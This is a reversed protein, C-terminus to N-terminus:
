AEEVFKPLQKKKLVAKKPEPIFFGEVDELITYIPNDRELAKLEPDPEPTGYGKHSGHADLYYMQAKTNGKIAADILADEVVEVRIEAIQKCYQKDEKVWKIHTNLDIRANTLAPLLLGQERILEILVRNKQQLITAM